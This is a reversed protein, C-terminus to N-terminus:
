RRRRRGRPPRAADRGRRRQADARRAGGRAAGGPAGDGGRAGRAPARRSRIIQTTTKTCHDSKCLRVIVCVRMCPLVCLCVDARGCAGELAARAEDREGAAAEAAGRADRLEARARGGAEVEYSMGDLAAQLNALEAERAELAERLAAGGDGAAAAAAAARAEDLQRSLEAERRAADERAARVEAEVRWALAAEEEDQGRM